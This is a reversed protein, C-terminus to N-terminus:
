TKPAEKARMADLANLHEGVQQQLEGYDDYHDDLDYLAASCLRLLTEGHESLRLGEAGLEPPPARDLRESVCRTCHWKVVGPEDAHCLPIPWEGPDAAVRSCPRRCYYCPAGHGMQEGKPADVPERHLTGRRFAENLAPVVWSWDRTLTQDEPEGGDSGIEEPEGGPEQYVVKQSWDDADDSAYEVRYRDAVEGRGAENRVLAARLNAM